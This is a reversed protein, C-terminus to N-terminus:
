FTRWICTQYKRAEERERERERERLPAYNNWLAQMGGAVSIVRRASNCARDAQRLGAQTHSRRPSQASRVALEATDLPHVRAAEDAEYGVQGEVLFAALGGDHTGRCYTPRAM